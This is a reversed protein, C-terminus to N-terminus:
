LPYGHEIAWVLLDDVSIMTTAGDGRCLVFEGISGREYPVITPPESANPNEIVQAVKAKEGNPLTVTWSTSPWVIPIKM